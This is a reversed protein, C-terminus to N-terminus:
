KQTLYKIADNLANNFDGDTNFCKSDYKETEKIFYKGYEGMAKAALRITEDNKTNGMLWDSNNKNKFFGQYIKDENTKTLFIIKVSANNKYKEVFKPLLHIGEIIYDMKCVLLHNIFSEMGPWISKAEQIDAMLMEKGSYKQFFKDIGVSDYMKIFPFKRDREKSNFYPLVVLRLNDTSIYPLNLKKSLKRSLISKGGRPSGGILYIM